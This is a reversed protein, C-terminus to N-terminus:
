KNEIQDPLASYPFNFEKLPLKTSQCYRIYRAITEKNNLAEILGDSLRNAVKSMSEPSYGKSHPEEFAIPLNKRFEINENMEEILWRLFHIETRCPVGITLHLSPENNAKASHWIGRPIYLFDGKTITIKTPTSTTPDFRDHHSMKPLKSPHEEYLEWDKSGEIQLIMVEHTDFHAKFGLTSTWSGYINIQTKEGLEARLTRALLKLSPTFRDASNVILTSGEQCHKKIKRSSLVNGSRTTFEVKPISKGNRALSIQPYSLLSLNQDLLDNFRDWSFLDQFKDSQGKIYLIKQIWYNEFFDDTNIPYLLERLKNM